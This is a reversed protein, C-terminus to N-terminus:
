DNAVSSAMKTYARNNENLKASENLYKFKDARNNFYNKIDRNENKKKYYDNLITKYEWYTPKYELSNIFNNTNNENSSLNWELVAADKWIDVWYKWRLNNYKQLDWAVQNWSAIDWSISKSLANYNNVIDNEKQMTYNNKNYESSLWYNKLINNQADLTDSNKRANM